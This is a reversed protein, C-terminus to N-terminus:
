VAIGEAVSRRESFPTFQGSREVWVWYARGTRIFDPAGEGSLSRKWTGANEFAYAVQWDLDGFYSDADGRSKAPTEGVPSQKVDIVGLLNWGYEVSLCPLAHRDTPKPIMVALTEPEAAHVWYGYGGVVEALSGTWSKVDRVATVWEGNRFSHVMDVANAEGFVDALAPAAPTGPFSILNWGAAITMQYLRQKSHLTNQM